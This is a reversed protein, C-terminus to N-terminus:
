AGGGRELNNPAAATIIHQEARGVDGLAGKRGSRMVRTDTNDCIFLLM